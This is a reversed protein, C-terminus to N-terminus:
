LDVWEMPASMSRLEWRQQAIGDKERLEIVGDFPPEFLYLLESSRPKPLYVYTMGDLRRVYTVLLHLFRFAAERGFENVLPPLSDLCVRVSGSTIGDTSSTFSELEALITRGLDPPRDGDVTVTRVSRQQEPPTAAATSRSFSAHDIVTTASARSTEPLLRAAADAPSRDTLVLLRQRPAETDDGFAKRCSRAVVPDTVAGAVLFACGDRKLASLEREFVAWDDDGPREGGEAM